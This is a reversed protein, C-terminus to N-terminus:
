KPTECLTQFHSALMTYLNAHQMESGDLVMTVFVTAKKKRPAPEASVIAAPELL